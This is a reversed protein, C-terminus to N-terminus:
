TPGFRETRIINDPVGLDVLNNAAEEVMGSPGCIFCQPLSTFYHLQETLMAQDIRRHYGPWDPPSERTYTFTVNAGGPTNGLKELEKRYITDKLSRMSYILSTQNTAGIAARHRLMAMLPVVGSGGALLLLPLQVMGPSWVFHGGIPGRVELPDGPSVGEHLYTSIEGGDILEVTLQIEGTTEPSSAISYSREARYGDEATLRVDYHQGPLHKQWQPLTLTFTKARYTEQVISKVRAIQWYFKEM